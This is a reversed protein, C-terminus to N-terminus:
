EAALVANREARLDILARRFDRPTVKVFHAAQEAWNDLIFRARASGTHLLHREILLTPHETGLKPKKLIRCM